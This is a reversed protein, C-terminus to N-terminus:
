FTGLELQRMLEPFMEELAPASAALLASLLVALCCGVLISLIVLSLSTLVARGWDFRHVAKVAMVNLVLGYIGLLTSVCAGLFPIWSVLGSVLGLPALYAAFAYTLEGYTGSGGLVRGFLQILAAYLAFGIVAIIIFVPLACVLAIAAGGFTELINEGAYLGM